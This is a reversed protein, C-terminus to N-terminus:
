RRCVISWGSWGDRGGIESGIQIKVGEEEGGEMRLSAVVAAVLLGAAQPAWSVAVCRLRGLGFQLLSQKQEDTISNKHHRFPNFCNADAGWLSIDRHLASVDAAITRTFYRAFFTPVITTLSHPLAAVTRSIRRVPPHLRMIETILAQVSPRQAETEWFAFQKVTPEELYEKLAERADNDCHTLAVGVAVVQWMTEYVPIIFNLPYELDPIWRTLRSNIDNLLNPPFASTSKSLSWLRNIGTTVVIVDEYDLLAPDVHFLTSIMVKFTLVQIFTEFPIESEPSQDCFCCSLENVTLTALRGFSDGFDHSPILKKANRVFASHVDLDASVFTNSLGFARILRVNAESRSQLLSPLPVRPINDPDMLERIRPLTSIIIKQCADAVLYHIILM